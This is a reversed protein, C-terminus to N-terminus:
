HRVAILELLHLSTPTWLKVRSGERYAIGSLFGSIKGTKLYEQSGKKSNGHDILTEEITEVRTPLSRSPGIWAAEFDLSTLLREDTQQFSEIRTGLM